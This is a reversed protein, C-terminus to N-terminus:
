VWAHLICYGSGCACVCVFFICKWCSQVCRCLVARVCTVCVLVWPTGDFVVCCRIVVCSWVWMGVYVCVCREYLCVCMCVTWVRLARACPMCQLCVVIFADSVVVCVFMGNTTETPSALRSTLSIIVIVFVSAALSSLVSARLQILPAKLTM